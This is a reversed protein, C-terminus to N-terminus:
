DPDCIVAKAIRRPWDPDLAIEHEDQNKIKELATRLRLEKAPTSLAPALLSLIDDAAKGAPVAMGGGAKEETIAKIIRAIIGQRSWHARLGLEKAPTSFAVRHHMFAQVAFTDDFEGSMFRERKSDDREWAELDAAMRRDAEIPEPHLSPPPTENTM